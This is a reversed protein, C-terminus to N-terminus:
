NVRFSNQNIRCQDVWSSLCLSSGILLVIVMGAMMTVEMCCIYVEPIDYNSGFTCIYRIQQFCNAKQREGMRHMVISNLREFTSDFGM